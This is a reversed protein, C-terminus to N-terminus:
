SLRRIAAVSREVEEPTNIIGPTLRASRQRYPTVSAIIGQEQLRGVVEEPPIGEVDFCTIGSSLGAALPTHLRVRPLESLAQKLLRNLDRIRKSIRAKGVADHFAFAEPLAWDHEFAKFGGPTLRGGFTGDATFTPVIEQLQHQARPHAWLVGTGRPGFLWKHTGAMFFDCDMEALSFAEVGLGHVGDVGILLRDEPGRHRNIEAVRAALRRVPFKLGTKSHVWTLAILRTRESVAGLVREVLADATVTDPDVALPLRTLRAGCRASKLALARRTVYYDEDTTVMEQDRRVRLGGYVLGIGETTSRTLALDRHKVGLYAAAVRRARLELDWRNQEAFLAPNADLFRRYDYIASQVPRPHSALLLCAMHIVQPTLDFQARVADWDDFVPRTHPAAPLRGSLATGALLAGTAQLFARRTSSM